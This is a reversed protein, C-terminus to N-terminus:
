RPLYAEALYKDHQVSVPAPGAKFKGVAAKARAVLAERSPTTERSVFSDVSQRILEAMSVGRAAAMSKLLKTQHTTLQIQTRVM